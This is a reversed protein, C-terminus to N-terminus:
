RLSRFISKWVRILEKKHQKTHVIHCCDKCLYEKVRYGTFRTEEILVDFVISTLNACQTCPHIWGEYPMSETYYLYIVYM